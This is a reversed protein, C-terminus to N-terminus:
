FVISKNVCNPALPLMGILVLLIRFFCSEKELLEGSEIYFFKFPTVSILIEDNSNLSSNNKSKKVILEYDESNLFKKENCEIKEEIIRTSFNLFKSSKM